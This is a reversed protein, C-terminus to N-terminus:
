FAIEDDGQFSGPYRDNLSQLREFLSKSIEERDEDSILYRAVELLKINRHKLLFVIEYSLSVVLMCIIDVRDNEYFDVLLHKVSDLEPATHCAFDYNDLVKKTRKLFFDTCNRYYGEEPVFEKPIIVDINNFKKQLYVEEFMSVIVESLEYQKFNQMLNEVAELIIKSTYSIEFKIEERM